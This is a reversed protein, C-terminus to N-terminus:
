NQERGLILLPDEEEDLSATLTSLAYGFAILVGTALGIWQITLKALIDETPIQGIIALIGLTSVALFILGSVQILPARGRMILGLMSGALILWAIMATWLTQAAISILREEIGPSAEGEVMIFLAMVTFAAGLGAGTLRRM